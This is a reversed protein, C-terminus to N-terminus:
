ERQAHRHATWANAADTPAKDCEGWGGLPQAIAAFALLVVAVNDRPNRDIFFKTATHKM